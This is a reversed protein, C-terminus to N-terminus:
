ENRLIEKQKVMVMHEILSDLGGYLLLDNRNLELIQNIGDATSSKLYQEIHSDYDAIGFLVFAQFKISSVLPRNDICHAALMTDWHWAAVRIKLKAISWREEFKINSAVKKLQKSRLVARIADFLSPRVMCSFTDRGDLCFSASVLRSKKRDPKLANTEWDFALIGKEKSLGWIRKKAKRTSRIIEVQSELKTINIPNPKVNALSMAKKIHNKFVLKLIVDKENRKEVLYSPDYTPCLWAGYEALPINWGVWREITNIDKKWLGHLLSELPDEGLTIIVNPKLKKITNLLSPRCCSIMFPEIKDASSHCIVSNTMWCADIDSGLDEVVERLYQGADGLFHTGRRDELENLAGGVFLVRIVGEGSPKMRPSICKQALGCKGCQTLRKPSCRSRQELSHPNFFGPM